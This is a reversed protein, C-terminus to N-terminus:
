SHIRNAIRPASIGLTKDYEGDRNFERYYLLNTRKEEALFFGFDHAFCCSGVDLTLFYLRSATSEIGRRVEKISITSWSSKYGWRVGRTEPCHRFM